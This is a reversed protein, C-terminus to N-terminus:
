TYGGLQNYIRAYPILLLWSWTLLLKEHLFLRLGQRRCDPLKAKQIKAACTVSFSYSIRKFFLLVPQLSAPETLLRHILM